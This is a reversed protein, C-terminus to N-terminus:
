WSMSCSHSIGCHPLPTSYMWRLGPLRLLRRFPSGTGPTYGSWGIGPPYLYPSRARWTPPTEFRLCCFHDRPESSESRLIVASALVLLTQLHCVWGRTIASTVYPSYGCANLQFIFNNTTLRLPSIALVFQNATFRWDYLLESESESLEIKRCDWSFETNLQPTNVLQCRFSFFHSVRLDSGLWNRCFHLCEYDLLSHLSDHVTM